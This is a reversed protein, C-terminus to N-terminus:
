RIIGVTEKMVREIQELNTKTKDEPIEIFMTKFDLDRVKDLITENIMIVHTKKRMNKIEEIIQKRTINKNVEVVKQLGALGFGIVDDQYGILGIM